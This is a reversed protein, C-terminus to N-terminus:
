TKEGIVATLAYERYGDDAPRMVKVSVETGPSYNVLRSRFMQMSDIETGGIETIVDGAAVGAALAPSDADVADVYVGEPVGLERSLQGTVTQGEIGFYSIRGNESLTGILNKLYSIGIGTVVSVGSGSYKPVIFAVVNGDKDTLIGSGSASGELDTAILGFEGDTVPVSSATSSVTGFAVSNSYGQPSGIAIVLDGTKVSFSNGLTALSFSSKAASPIDSLQVSIVALGSVPDEKVLSGDAMSGDSFTVIIREPTGLRSYEALILVSEANENILLGSVSSSAADTNRFWDEVSTFGTVQVVSKEAAAAVALLEENTGSVAATEEGAAAEETEETDASSSVADSAASDPVSSVSQSAAAAEEATDGNGPAYADDTLYTPDEEASSSRSTGTVRVFVLGAVLGFLAASGALALIRFIFRRMPLPRKKVTEDIFSYAEDEHENNEENPSFDHDENM